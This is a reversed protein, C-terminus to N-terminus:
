TSPHTTFQSYLFWKILATHSIFGSQGGRDGRGHDAFAGATDIYIYIYIYMYIYIYIHIYIHIYIYMYTCIYIYIHVYTYIYM